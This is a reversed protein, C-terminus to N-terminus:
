VGVSRFDGHFGSEGRVKEIWSLGNHICIMRFPTLFLFHYRVHKVFYEVIALDSQGFDSSNRCFIAKLLLLFCVQEM